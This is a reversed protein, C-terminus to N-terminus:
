EGVIAFFKPFVRRLNARCHQALEEKDINKLQAARQYIEELAIQGDDSELFLQEIPFDNFTEKAKSNSRMLNRGFSLYHGHRALDQAQKPAFNADHFILKGSYPSDKTLAVIDDLARVCHLIIFDFQYAHALELQRSFLNKQQDYNEGRVRDLGIEGLTLFNERECYKQLNAAFEEFNAREVHWPHIGYTFPLKKPSQDFSLSEICHHKPNPSHTHFDILM